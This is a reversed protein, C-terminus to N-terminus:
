AQAPPNFYRVSLLTLLVFYPAVVLFWHIRAIIKQESTWEFGTTGSISATFRVSFIHFTVGMLLAAGINVIKPLPTWRKLSYFTLAPWGGFYPLVVPVGLQLDAITVSAIM